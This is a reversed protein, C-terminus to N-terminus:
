KEKHLINYIHDIRNRIYKVDNQNDEIEDMINEIETDMIAIEKSFGWLTSVLGTIIAVLIASAVSKM